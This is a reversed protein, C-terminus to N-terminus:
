RQQRSARMDSGVVEDASSEKANQEYTRAYREKTWGDRWCIACCGEHWCALNTPLNCCEESRKTPCLSENNFNIPQANLHIRRWIRTHAGAVGDERCKRLPGDRGVGL